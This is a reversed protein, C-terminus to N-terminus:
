PLRVWERAMPIKCVLTYAPVTPPPYQAPLGSEKHESYETTQQPQSQNTQEPLRNTAAGVVKRTQWRPRKRNM